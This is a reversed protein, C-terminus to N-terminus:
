GRRVRVPGCRGTTSPSRATSAAPRSDPEVTLFDAAVDAALRYPTVAVASGLLKRLRSMEARTSVRDGHDANYHPTLQEPTLGGAVDRALNEAHRRSLELRHGIQAELRRQDLLRLSPRSSALL